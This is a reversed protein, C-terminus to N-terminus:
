GERTRHACAQLRCGDHRRDLGTPRRVGLLAAGSRHSPGSRPTRSARRMSRPGAGADRGGQARRSAGRGRHARRRGRPEDFQADLRRRPWSRSARRGAGGPPPDQRRVPRAREDPGARRDVQGRRRGQEAGRGDQRPRAARLAEVEAAELKEKMGNLGVKLKEVVETQAAITPEVAKAQTRRASRGSSRSRPSTTSSTPTPAHQRGRAARRGQPQRRHGQQGVRHRGARGRQHDRELLRLNGITEAIASRRRPSATPTTGCWSTSCRRRTRPPTSSRTSTRGCSRPSAARLHVAEGDTNRGIPSDHQLRPSHSPHRARPRRATLLSWRRPPIPHRRRRLQRPRLRRRMDVAASCRRRAAAPRGGRGGSLMSNIVIGGLVAGLMGGGGSALRGGLRRRASDASVAATSPGSTTRPSSSPPAPSSIRASRMSCPRSRTPRRCSSLAARAIRGGRRTADAGRGRGRRAPGHHLGRGGLGAGAGADDLQGLMQQARQPRPRPM